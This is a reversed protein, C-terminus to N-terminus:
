DCIGSFRLWECPFGTHRARSGKGAVMEGEVDGGEFHMCGCVEMMGGRQM